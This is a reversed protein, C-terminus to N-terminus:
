QFPPKSLQSRPSAAAARSTPLARITPPSIRASLCGASFSTQFVLVAQPYGPPLMESSADSTHESSHQPLSSHHLLHRIHSRRMGQRPGRLCLKWRSQPFYIRLLLGADKFLQTTARRQLGSIVTPVAAVSCPDKFSCPYSSKPTAHSLPLVQIVLSLHPHNGYHVVSDFCATLSYDSEWLGPSWNALQDHAGLLSIAPCNVWNKSLRNLLLTTPLTFSM